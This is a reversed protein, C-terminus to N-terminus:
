KASLRLWSVTEGNSDYSARRDPDSLVEYAESLKIFAEEQEATANPGLKDPHLQLALKKYAKRIERATADKDVGLIDYFNATSTSVDLWIISLLACLLYYTLRM